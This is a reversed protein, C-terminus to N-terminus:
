CKRWKSLMAKAELGKFTNNSIVDLIEERPMGAMIMDNIDKQEIYDPFLVISYGQQITKEVRNVIEKSRPENDYVFTFKVGSHRELGSVDAGAMAIANPVFLSDIPGELVFVEKSFDVTDLGFVKPNGEEMMITIYKNNSKGFARGQFGLLKNDVDLLPIILRPEDKVVHPIKGPVMQNVFAYFKPSYFLRSHSEPPLKRNNVYKKVPHDFKLQSVKKLKGLPTKLYDPKKKFKIGTNTKASVPKRERDGFRELSYEKFMQPNVYKILNGLSSGIGCNHCKFIYNGEKLFVYGRAKKKDSQSDGCFPCRFNYLSENKRKYQELQSSILHLYKTDIFNSM